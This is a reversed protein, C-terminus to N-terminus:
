PLNAHSGLELGRSIKWIRRDHRHAPLATLWGRETLEQTLNLITKKDRFFTPASRHIDRLSVIPQAWHVVLWKLLQATADNRVTEVPPSRKQNLKDFLTAM